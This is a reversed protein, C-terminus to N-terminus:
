ILIMGMDAIMQYIWNYYEQRIKLEVKIDKLQRGQSKFNTPQVHEVEFRLIEMQARFIAEFEEQEAATWALYSQSHRIMTERGKEKKKEQEFSYFEPIM